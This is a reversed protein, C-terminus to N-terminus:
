TYFAINETGFFLHIELVVYIYSVFRRYKIVELKFSKGRFSYSLVIKVPKHEPLLTHLAM